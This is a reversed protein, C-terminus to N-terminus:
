TGKERVREVDLEFASVSIKNRSYGGTMTGTMITQGDWEEQKLQQIRGLRAHPIETMSRGTHLSGMEKM